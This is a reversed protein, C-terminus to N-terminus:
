EYLFIDACVTYIHQEIIQGVHSNDFRLFGVNLFLM